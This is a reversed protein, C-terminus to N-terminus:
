SVDVGCAIGRHKADLLSNQIRHRQHIDLGAPCGQNHNSGLMCLQVARQQSTEPWERLNMM